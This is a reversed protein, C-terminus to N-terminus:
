TLLTRAVDRTQLLIIPSWLQYKACDSQKIARELITRTIAIMHVLGGSNAVPGTIAQTHALAHHRTTLSPPPQRQLRIHGLTVVAVATQGCCSLVAVAWCCDGTTRGAPPGLSPGHSWASVLWHPSPGPEPLVPTIHCLPVTVAQFNTM